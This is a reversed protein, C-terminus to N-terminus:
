SGKQKEMTKAGNKRGKEVEKEMPRMLLRKERRKEKWGGFVFVVSLAIVCKEERREWLCVVGKRMGLENDNKTGEELEKPERQREEIYNIWLTENGQSADRFWLRLFSLPLSSVSVFVAVVVKMLWFFFTLLESHM